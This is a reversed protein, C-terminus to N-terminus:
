GVLKAELEADSPEVLLTGDPFRLTPVVRRGHNMRIVEAAAEEDDDVDIWRYRAGLRELVRRARRCDACWETSYVVIEDQSSM